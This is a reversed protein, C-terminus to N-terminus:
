FFRKAFVRFFLAFIVGRRFTFFLRSREYLFALALVKKEKDLVLRAFVRANTKELKELFASLPAASELVIM